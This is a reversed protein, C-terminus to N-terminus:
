TFYAGFLYSNTEQASIGDMSVGSSLLAKCIDAKRNERHLIPMTPIFLTSLEAGIPIMDSSSEYNKMLKFFLSEEWNSKSFASTVIGSCAYTQDAFKMIWFANKSDRCRRSTAMEFAKVTCGIGFKQRASSFVLNLSKEIVVSGSM